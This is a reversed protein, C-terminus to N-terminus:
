ACCPLFLCAGHHRFVIRVVTAAKWLAVSLCLGVCMAMMAAFNNPNDLTGYIRGDISSFSAPDALTILGSLLAALVLGVWYFASDGNWIIFNTIVFGIMFVQVLTVIKPLAADPSDSFLSSVVAFLFWALLVKYERLLIVGGAKRGAAFFLFLCVIVLGAGKAYATLGQQFSLLVVAVVYLWVAVRYVVGIGPRRRETSGPLIPPDIKSYVANVKHPRRLVM